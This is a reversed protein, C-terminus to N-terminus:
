IGPGILLIELKKRNYYHKFRSKKSSPELKHRVGYWTYLVNVPVSYLVVLVAVAITSRVRVFQKPCARRTGRSVNLFSPLSKLMRTTTMPHGHVQHSGFNGFLRGQARTALATEFHRLIGIKQATFASKQATSGWALTNVAIQM